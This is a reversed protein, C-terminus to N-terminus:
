LPTESLADGLPDNARRSPRAGIGSPFLETTPKRGPDFVVSGLQIAVIPFWKGLSHPIAVKV